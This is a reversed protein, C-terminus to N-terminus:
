WIGDRNQSSAMPPRTARDAAGRRPATSVGQVAAAPSASITTPSLWDKIRVQIPINMAPPALINHIARNLMATDDSNNNVMTAAVHVPAAVVAAPPPAQRAPPPQSMVVNGISASKAASLLEQPLENPVANGKKALMTLHMAIMFETLDLMGDQSVDSLRWIQKLTEQPQGSKALFAAADKGGLLTLENKPLTDWLKEYNAKAENSMSYISGSTLASTSSQQGMAAPKKQASAPYEIGTFKPLPLALNATDYLTQADANKGNQALSILRMATFFEKAGM